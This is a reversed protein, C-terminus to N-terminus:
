FFYNNMKRIPNMKLIPILNQNPVKQKLKKKTRYLVRVFNSKSGKGKAKKRKNSDEPDHPNEEEDSDSSPPFHAPKSLDLDKFADADIEEEIIEPKTFKISLIYPECISRERVLFQSDMEYGERNIPNLLEVLLEHNRFLNEVYTRFPVTILITDEHRSVSHNHAIIFKCKISFHDKVGFKLHNKAELNENVIQQLQKLFNQEFEKTPDLRKKYELIIGFKAFIKRLHKMDYRTHLLIGTEIFGIMLKLVEIDCDVYYSGDDQKKSGKFESGGLMNNFYQSLKLISECVKYKEGRADLLIIKEEM